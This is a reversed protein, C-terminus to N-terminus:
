KSRGEWIASAKTRMAMIRAMSLRSAAVGDAHIRSREISKAALVIVRLPQIKIPLLALFENDILPTSRAHRPSVDVSARIVLGSLRKRNGHHAEPGGRHLDLLIKAWCRDTGDSAQLMCDLRCAM